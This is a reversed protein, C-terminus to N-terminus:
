KSQQNLYKKLEQIAAAINENYIGTLEIGKKENEHEIIFDPRESCEIIKIDLGTKAIFKAINILELAKKKSHQTDESILAAYFPEISSKIRRRELLQRNYEAELIQASVEQITMNYLESIGRIFEEYQLDASLKGVKRKIVWEESQEGEM